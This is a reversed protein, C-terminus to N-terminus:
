QRKKGLVCTINIIGLIIRNRPFEWKPDYPLLNIQEDLSIAPNILGPDGSCYRNALRSSNRVRGM